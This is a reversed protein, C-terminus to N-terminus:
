STLQQQNAAKLEDVDAKLSILMDRMELLLSATEANSLERADADANNGDDDDDDDDDFVKEEKDSLAFASGFIGILGNLLMISSLIMYFILLTAYGSDGTSIMASLYDFGTGDYFSLRLMTVYCMRLSSCSYGELTSISGRDLWFVVAVIYTVFFFSALIVLGGKSKDTALEKGMKELYFVFLKCTRTNVKFFYLIIGQAYTLLEEEDAGGKRSGGAMRNRKPKALLEFFWFVRLVRVCRLASLGKHAFITGWGYVLAALEFWAEGDLLELILLSKRARVAQILDEDHRIIYRLVITGIVFMVTSAALVALQAQFM